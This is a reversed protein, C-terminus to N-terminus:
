HVAHLPLVKAQTKSTEFVEEVLAMAAKIFDHTDNGECLVFASSAAADIRGARCQRLVAMFLRESDTLKRSCCPCEPNNFHFVSQRARRMGQVMSLVGIAVKPGQDEDFLQLAASIGGLWAHSEPSAFSTFYMRAINLVTLEEATYGDCSYQPGNKTAGCTKNSHTDDM